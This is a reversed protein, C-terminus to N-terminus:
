VSFIGRLKNELDIRTIPKQLFYDGPPLRGERLTAGDTYGSAYLVKVSPLKQHLREALEWGDMGPMVLDTLLLDITDRQEDVIRLAERGDCASLVIHGLRGLMLSIVERLAAEDEM